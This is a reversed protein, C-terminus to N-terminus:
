ALFPALCWIQTIYFLVFLSRLLEEARNKSNEADAYPAHITVARTSNSSMRGPCSCTQLQIRLFEARSRFDMQIRAFGAVVTDRLGDLNQLGTGAGCVGKWPVSASPPLCGNKGCVGSYGLKTGPM